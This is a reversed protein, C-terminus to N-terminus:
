PNSLKYILIKDSPTSLDAIQVADPVGSALWKKIYPRMDIASGRLVVFNVGRKRFYKIATEESSYPFKVFTASAHFALTPTTDAIHPVGGDSQLREAFAKVPRTQLEELFDRRTLALSPLLVLALISAAASGSALSQLRTGGGLVSTVDRAWLTLRSLGGAAFICFVPIFILYFREDTYYIFFTGFTAFALILFLYIRDLAAQRSRSQGFFGTIALVFLAPSGFKLGGAVFAAANQAVYIAKAKLLMIYDVIGFHFLRLADEHPIMFVGHPVLNDDMAYQADFYPEGAMQRLQVAMNLPTKGEIRLGGAHISLWIIYPLGLILFFLPIIAAKSIRSRPDKLSDATAFYFYVTGLAMYIIGEPRVLYTLGYLLGALALNENSPKKAALMASSVALLALTLFTSECHVTMSYRVLLPHIAVLTAAILGETRSLMQSAIWFVPFVLIAGAVINITRGAIETDGTVYGVLAILFPYLPPFVTEPGRSVIGTYGDGSLLHRAISAYEAGEADIKGSFYIACAARIILALAFLSLLAFKGELTVKSPLFRNM